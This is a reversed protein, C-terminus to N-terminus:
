PMLSPKAKGASQGCCGQGGSSATGALPSTYLFTRASGGVAASKRLIRSIPLRTRFGWSAQWDQPM